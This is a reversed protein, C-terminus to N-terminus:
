FLTVNKRPFFDDAYTEKTFIVSKPLFIKEQDVVNETQRKIFQSLIETKRKEKQINILYSNTLKLKIPLYRFCIKKFTFYFAFLLITLFIEM